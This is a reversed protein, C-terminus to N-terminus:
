FSFMSVTWVTTNRDPKQEFGWNSMHKENLLSFPWGKVKNLQEDNLVLWSVFPSKVGDQQEWWAALQGM